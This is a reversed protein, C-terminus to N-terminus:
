APGPIPTATASGTAAPSMWVAPQRSVDSTNMAELRRPTANTQIIVLPGGMTTGVGATVGVGADGRAGRAQM